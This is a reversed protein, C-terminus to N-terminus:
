LLLELLNPGRACRELIARATAGSAAARRRNM